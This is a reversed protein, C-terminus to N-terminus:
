AKGSLTRRLRSMELAKREADASTALLDQAFERAEVPSLDHRQNGVHMYVRPAINEDHM